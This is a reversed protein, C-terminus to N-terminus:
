ALEYDFEALTFILICYLIEIHDHERFFSESFGFAIFSVGILYLEPKRLKFGKYWPWLWILMLVCFGVIGLETLTDFYQNHTYFNEQALEPAGAEILYSKFNEDALGPGVPTLWHESAMKKGAEWLIKRTSVGDNRDIRGDSGLATEGTKLAQYTKQWNPNYALFLVITLISFGLGFWKLSKPLRKESVLWIVLGIVLVVLFLRSALLLLYALFLVILGKQVWQQKFLQPKFLLIAIAGFLHFSLFVRHEHTKFLLNQGFYYELALNDPHNLYGLAIYASYMVLPLFGLVFAQLLIRKQTHSFGSGYICVPLFVFWRSYDLIPALEKNPLSLVGFLCIILFYALCILSFSQSM